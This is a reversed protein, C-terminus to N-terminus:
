ILFPPAWLTQRVTSEVNQRPAVDVDHPVMAAHVFYLANLLLVLITLTQM